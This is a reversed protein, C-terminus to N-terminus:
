LKELIQQLKSLAPVTDFELCITALERGSAKSEGLAKSVAKRSSPDETLMDHSAMILYKCGEILTITSGRLKTADGTDETKLIECTQRVAVALTTAMFEIGKQAASPQDGDDTEMSTADVQSAHALGVQIAAIPVEWWRADVKDPESSDLAWYVASEASVIKEGVLFEVVSIMATKNFSLSSALENLVFIDAVGSDMSESEESDKTLSGRIAACYKAFNDLLTTLFDPRVSDSSFTGSSKLEHITALLDKHEEVAPRLLCRLLVGTRWFSTEMSSRESDTKDSAEDSILTALVTEANAKQEIHSALDAELQSLASGDEFTKEVVNSVLFASLTSDQPLCDIILPKPDTLDDLITSLLGCM